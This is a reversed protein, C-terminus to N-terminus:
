SGLIRRFNIKAGLKELENKKTKHRVGGQGGSGGGRYYIGTRNLLILTRVELFFCVSLIKNIACKQAQAVILVSTHWVKRACKRM